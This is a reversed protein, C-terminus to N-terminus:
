AKKAVALAPARLEAVLEAKLAAFRADLDERLSAVADAAERHGPEGAAAQAMGKLRDFVAEVISAVHDTTLIEAGDDRPAPASSGLARAVHEVILPIHAETLVPAAHQAAPGDARHPVRHADSPTTAFGDREAREQEADSGVLRTGAGRGYMLKPYEQHM